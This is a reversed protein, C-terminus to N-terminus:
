KANVLGYMFAHDKSNDQGGEYEKPLPLDSGYIADLTLLVYKEADIEGSEFAIYIKEVSSQEAEVYDETAKKVKEVLNRIEEDKMSKISIDSFSIKQKTKIGSIILFFVFIFVLTASVIAVVKTSKKM